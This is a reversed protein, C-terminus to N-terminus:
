RCVDIQTHKGKMFAQGVNARLVDKIVGLSM